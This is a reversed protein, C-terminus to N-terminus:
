VLSGHVIDRCNFYLHLIVDFVDFILIFNQNNDVKIIGKCLM